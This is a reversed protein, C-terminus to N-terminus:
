RNSQRSKARLFIRLFNGIASLASAVYTMAAASLVKKIGKMEEDTMIGSAQMIKYARRSADFEVPLTVVYFLVSAAFLILGINVILGGLGGTSVTDAVTTATNMGLGIVCLIPGFSSGINAIPVLTSRLGMWRYGEKHQISHGAEHAAVGVAAVSAANLVPESLRLVKETPSYHDTLSGAIGEIKVDNVDKAKMVYQAAQFGKIGRSTKVQSYKNFNSKVKYQAWMSLLLAPVVLIIYYIDIGGLISSM